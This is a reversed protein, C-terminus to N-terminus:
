GIFHGEQWMGTTEVGNAITTGKGNPYDNKWEGRYSLTGDPNYLEGYGNKMDNQYEGTYVRNDHWQYKGNGSKQGHRFDGIYVGGTSNM